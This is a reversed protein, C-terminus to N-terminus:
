RNLNIERVISIVKGHYNQIKALTFPQKVLNNKMGRNGNNTLPATHRNVSLVTYHPIMWPCMELEAQLVIDFSM